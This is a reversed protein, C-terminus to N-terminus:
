RSRMPWRTSVARRTSSSRATPPPPRSRGCGSGSVTRATSSTWSSRVSRPGPGAREYVLLPPMGAVNPTASIVAGDRAVVQVIEDESSPTLAAPLAGDGVLAALDRARALATADGSRELSVRLTVLLAAAGVVLAIAVVVAAVATTRARGSALHGVRRGVRPSGSTIM